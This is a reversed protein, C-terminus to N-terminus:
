CRCKIRTELIYANLYLDNKFATNCYKYSWYNVVVDIDALLPNFIIKYTKAM